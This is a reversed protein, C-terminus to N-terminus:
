VLNNSLCIKHTNKSRIIKMLALGLCKEMNLFDNEINFKEEYNSEGHIYDYESNEKSYIGPPDICILHGNNAIALALLCRASQGSCTGLEVINKYNYKKGLNFIYDFNEYHCANLKKAYKKATKLTYYDQILM